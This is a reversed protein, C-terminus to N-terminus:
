GTNQMPSDLPSSCFYEPLMIPTKTNGRKLSAGPAWRCLWGQGASPNKLAKCPHEIGEPQSPAGRLAGNMGHSQSLQRAPGRPRRM